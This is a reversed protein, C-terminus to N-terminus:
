EFIKIIRVGLKGDIEVLEGKAMLKGNAVLDIAENPFRNLEVVQGKKLSIIDKITLTKKGMVAVLQVPVDATLGTARRETKVVSSTGSTPQPMGFNGPSPMPPAEAKAPQFSPPESNPNFDFPDGGEDEAEGEPAEPDAFPDLDPNYEDEFNPDSNNSM